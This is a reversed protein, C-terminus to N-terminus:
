ESYNHKVDGVPECVLLQEVILHPQSPPACRGLPHRDPAQGGEVVGVHRRVEEDPLLTPEEHEDVPSVADDHLLQRTLEIAELGNGALGVVEFSPETSLMGAICERFLRQDDVVILRLLPLTRDLHAQVRVSTREEFQISM